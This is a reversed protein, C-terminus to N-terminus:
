LEATHANEAIQISDLLNHVAQQKEITADYRFIIDPTYRGSASQAISARLSPKYLILQGLKKSFAEQGERTFLYISCIGGDASLAVRTIWVDQLDPEDAIIQMFRSSVERFLHAERQARKIETRRPNHSRHM